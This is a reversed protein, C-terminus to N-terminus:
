GSTDEWLQSPAHDPCYALGEGDQIIAARDCKCCSPLAPNSSAPEATQSPPQLELHNSM